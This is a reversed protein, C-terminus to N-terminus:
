CWGEGRFAVGQKQKFTPPPQRAQLTHQRHLHELATGKSRPAERHRAAGGQCAKQAAVAEQRATAPQYLVRLWPLCCGICAMWGCCYAGCSPMISARPVQLCCVLVRCPPAHLCLLGGPLTHSCCGCAHCRTAVAPHCIPRAISARLVLSCGLCSPLHCLLLRIAVAPSATCCAPAPLSLQMELPPTTNFLWNTKSRSRRLM